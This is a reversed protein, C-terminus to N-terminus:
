QGELLEIRARLDKVEDILLAVIRDYKISEVEEPDDPHFAILEKWGADNITDAIVGVYVHDPDDDECLSTYLIGSAAEFFADRREKSIPEINTKYKRASVFRQLRGLSDVQVSNTGGTTSNYAGLINAQNASTWYATVAGGSTFALQNEGSRYMGTNTDTRFSFAPSAATGDNFNYNYTPMIPKNMYIQGRDTELRAYTTDIVRMQIYGDPSQVRWTVDNGNCDLYAHENGSGSDYFRFYRDSMLKMSSSSIGISYSDSNGYLRVKQGVTAPFYVQPDLSIQGGGAWISIDNNFDFISLGSSVGSIGRTNAGVGGSLGFSGDGDMNLISGDNGTIAKAVIADGTVTSKYAGLFAHDGATSGWLLGSVLGSDLTTDWTSELTDGEYLDFSSAKVGGSDVVMHQSKIIGDNLTIQTGADAFVEGGDAADYNGSEIVGGGAADSGITVDGTPGDVSFYPGFNANGEGDIRFGGLTATDESLVKWVVDGEAVNDETAECYVIDGIAYATANITGAATARWFMGDDYSVAPEFLGSDPYYYSTDNVITPM